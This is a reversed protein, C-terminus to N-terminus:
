PHGSFLLVTELERLRIRTPFRERVLRNNERTRPLLPPTGCTPLGLPNRDPTLILFRWFGVLILFFESSM